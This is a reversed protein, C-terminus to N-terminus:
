GRRKDGTRSGSGGGARRSAGGWPGTTKPRPKAPMELGALAMLDRMEQDSLERWQGIRMRDELMVNGFRVRKLRNVTCGAAEWLWHRRGRVFFPERVPVMGRQREVGCQPPLM